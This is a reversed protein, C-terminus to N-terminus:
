RDEVYICRVESKIEKLTFFSGKVVFIHCWVLVTINKPHLIFKNEVIQM